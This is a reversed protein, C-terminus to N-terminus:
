YLKLMSAGADYTISGTGTTLTTSVSISTGQKVRITIPSYASAGIASLGASTSGMTFFTATRSTSTEDTYTVSMQIVDLSIATITLYASVLFTNFSGSGPVSYASVTGATTQGTADTAGFVKVVPLGDAYATTAVKTSNDNSAQTTATTGNPLASAASLSAASGTTNATNNPIDSSQLTVLAPAQAASGTGTSTYFQRTTSTNGSLRTAAGAAAGYIIDGITTMPNTFGGASTAYYAASIAKIVNGHKVLISDTGAVGARTQALLVSDAFYSSGNVEFNNSTAFTPNNVNGNIQVQHLDERGYILTSDGIILNGSGTTVNLGASSGIFTNDSGTTVNKGANYGINTNYNGTTNAYGSQYGLFTNVFGTTNGNGSFNGLFVNAFGSTNAQGTYSGVSVNNNATSSFNLANYGIGINDHGTTNTSLAPYGVAVNQYGTTNALLCVSGLATNNYGSTNFQLADQGLAVNYAGTVNHMLAQNGVATNNAGSTDVQLAKYGIATNNNGSATFANGAQYGFVSNGFINNNGPGASIAHASDGIWLYGNSTFRARQLGDTYIDVNNNDNSGIYATAGFNNGNKVWSFSPTGVAAAIASDVQRKEYVGHINSGFTPSTSYIWSGKILENAGTHGHEFQASASLTCLILFYVILQKM